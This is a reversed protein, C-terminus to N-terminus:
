EEGGGCPAAEGPSGPGNLPPEDAQTEALAEQVPTLPPAEIPEVYHTAMGGGTAPFGDAIAIAPAYDDYAVPNVSCARGLAEFAAAFNHSGDARRPILITVESHDGTDPFNVNSIM